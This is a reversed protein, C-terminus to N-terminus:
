AALCLADAAQQFLSVCSGLLMLNLRGFTHALLCLQQGGFFAQTRRRHLGFVAEQARREVTLDCYSQKVGTGKNSGTRREHGDDVAADQTDLGIHRLRVEIDDWW